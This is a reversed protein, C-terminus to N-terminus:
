VLIKKPLFFLIWGWCSHIVFVMAIFPITFYEAEIAGCYYGFILSMVSYCASVILVISSVRALGSSRTTLTLGITLCLIVFGAMAMRLHNPRYSMGYTSWIVVIFTILTILTVGFCIRGAMKSHGSRVKSMLSGSFMALLSSAITALTLWSYSMLPIVVQSTKGSWQTQQKTKPKLDATSPKPKRSAPQIGFMAAAAEDLDVDVVVPTKMILTMYLFPDVEWWTGYYLAGSVFMNILALSWMTTTKNTKGGMKVPRRPRNSSSGYIVKIDLPSNPKMTQINGSFSHFIGRLDIDQNFRNKKETAM